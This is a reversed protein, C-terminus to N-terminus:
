KTPHSSEFQLPGPTQTGGARAMSPSMHNFKRDKPNEWNRSKHLPPAYKPSEKFPYM